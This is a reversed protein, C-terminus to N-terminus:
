YGKHTVLLYWFWHDGFKLTTHIFLLNLALVVLLFGSEAAILRALKLSVLRILVVCKV